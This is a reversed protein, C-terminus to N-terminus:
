KNSITALFFRTESPSNAIFMDRQLFPHVAGITAEDDM